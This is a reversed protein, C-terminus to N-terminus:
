AEKDPEQITQILNQSPTGIGHVLLDYAIKVREWRRDRDM